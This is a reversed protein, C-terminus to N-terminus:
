KYELETGHSAQGSRNTTNEKQGVLREVYIELLSVVLKNCSISVFNFPMNKKSLEVLSLPEEGSNENL